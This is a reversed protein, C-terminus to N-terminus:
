LQGARDREPPRNPDLYKAFYTAPSRAIADLGSKSIGPGRHYADIDLDDILGLPTAPALVASM